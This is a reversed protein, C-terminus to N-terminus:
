DPWASRQGLLHQIEQLGPEVLMDHPRVPGEAHVEVRVTTRRLQGHSGLCANPQGVLVAGGDRTERLCARTSSISGSLDGRM